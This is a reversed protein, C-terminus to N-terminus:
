GIGTQAKTPHCSLKRFLKEVEEIGEFFEVIAQALNARGREDLHRATRSTGIACHEVWFRSGETFLAQLLAAYALIAIGPV